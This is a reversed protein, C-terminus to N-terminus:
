ARATALLWTFARTRVHWRQYAYEQTSMRIDLQGPAVAYDVGGAGANAEVLAFAEVSWTQTNTALRVSGDMVDLRDNGKSGFLRATDRGGIGAKANVYDFGFLGNHYGEGGLGVEDTRATLLDDGPSGFVFATDGEGPTAYAYVRDFGTAQQLYRTGGLTSVEPMGWFRDTGPSGHLYARDLGGPGATAYVRDFAEAYILKNGSALRTATPSASLSDNDASGYLFARDLGGEGFVYVREFAEVYDLHKDSSLRTYDDRAVLLEDATSGRLEAVDQGEGAFVYVRSFGDAAIHYGLGRLSAGSTESSFYDNGPTGYLRIEGQNEATAQVEIQTGGEVSLLSDTGQIDLRGPHVYVQPATESTRLVITDDEGARVDFQSSISEDLAFELDDMVITLGSGRHFEVKSIAEPIQIFTHDATTHSSVNALTMQGIARSGQLRVFYTQRAETAWDIREYGAPGASRDLPRGVADFLDINVDVGRGFRTEITLWGAETTELQYWREGGVFEIESLRLFGVPGVNQAQATLARFNSESPADIPVSAVAVDGLISEVAAQLDVRAYPTSSNADSIWDATDRLVQYITAQDIQEHGARLLAQRVLVAAGAVFPAAQSTGSFAYWDDTVGDFDFLFDTITSNINEGPAALMREDRRTFSSLQGTDGVSGVPVVWPSDAPYSLGPLPNVDYGNGAAVSIFIGDEVLQAFEDDLLRDVERLQKQPLTGISLNVTTIPHAFDNRHQHVWQLAQEIWQFDSHGTDDFVRLGILDADPAVGIHHPDLSGIIGAVHTGHFGAPGDDYPDADNEATFDWGGVVHYGSGLGQGLAPHDYAIGSDIVVVTQDAGTLQFQEHLHRLAAQM